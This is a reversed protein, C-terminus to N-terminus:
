QKQKSTQKKKIFVSFDIFLPLVIVFAHHSDLPKTSAAIEGQGHVPPWVFYALSVPFVCGFLPKRPWTSVRVAPVKVGVAGHAASRWLPLGANRNRSRMEMNPRPAPMLGQLRTHGGNDVFLILAPSAPPKGRDTQNKGRGNSILKSTHINNDNFQAAM